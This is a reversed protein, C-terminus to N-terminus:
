GGWYNYCFPFFLVYLFLFFRFGSFFSRLFIPPRAVGDVGFSTGHTDGGGGRPASTRTKETTKTKKQHRERERNHKKKRNKKQPSPTIKEM